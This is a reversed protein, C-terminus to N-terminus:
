RDTGPQRHRRSLRSAPVQACAGGTFGAAKWTHCSSVFRSTAPAVARCSTDFGSGASTPSWAQGAYDPFHVSHQAYFAAGWDIDVYDEDPQGDGSEKTSVLVLEGGLAARCDARAPKAAHGEVLGQMLDEEFGIEARVSIDPAMKRMLPLWEFLLGEWLGFRGGVALTGPYGAAIGVDKKL